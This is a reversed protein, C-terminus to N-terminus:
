TGPTSTSCKMARSQGLIQREWKPWESVVQRNAELHKRFESVESSNARKTAEVPKPKNAEQQM